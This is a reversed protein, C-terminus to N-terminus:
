GAQNFRTAFADPEGDTPYAAQYLTSMRQVEQDHSPHTNDNYPHKANGLVDSIKELAETPTMTFSRQGGEGMPCVETLNAGVGAFAKILAPSNGMGSEDLEQILADGGYTRLANRADTIKNDYADCWETRLLGVAEERQQTYQEDVQNNGSRMWDMMATAQSNSLGVKHFQELIASDTDPDSSEGVKYGDAAEPRGMSNYFAMWEEESSADTPVQAIGPVQTLKGKFDSWVDADADEGPIRVSRGIFSQADNYAKALTAVDPIDKLSGVERLDEPLSERWTGTATPEVVPATAETTPEDTLETAM